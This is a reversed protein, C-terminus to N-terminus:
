ALYERHVRSWFVRYGAVHTVWRNWIGPGAGKALVFRDDRMKDWGTKEPHITGVGQGADAPAPLSAPATPTAPPSCVTVSSVHVLRFFDGTHYELELVNGDVARVTYIGEQYVVKTGATIPSHPM